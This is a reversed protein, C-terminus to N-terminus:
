IMHEGTKARKKMPIASTDVTSEEPPADLTKNLILGVTSCYNLTVTTIYKGKAYKAVPKPTKKTKSKAESKAKSEPKVSSNENLSVSGATSVLCKKGKMKADGLKSREELAEEQKTASYDKLEKPMQYSVEGLEHLVMEVKGTMMGASAGQEEGDGRTQAINFKFSTHQSVGDKRSWNGKFDNQKPSPYNHHYGLDVGDVKFNARVGGRNTGVCIFYDLGPEVELYLLTFTLVISLQWHLYIM